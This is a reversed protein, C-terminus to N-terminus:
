PAPAPGGPLEITVKRPGAPPAPYDQLAAQMMPPLLNNSDAWPGDFLASTEYVVQGTSLERLLFRVEHRYWDPELFLDAGLGGRRWWFGGMPPFPNSARMVTVRTTVQVTYRVDAAATAGAAQTLGVQALAQVAMAELAEQKPSQSQSPLREFRYTAPREAAASSTFSQVESDIMRPMACGSLLVLLGCGVVAACVRCLFHSM